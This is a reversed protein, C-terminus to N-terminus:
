PQRRGPAHRAGPRRGAPQRRRRRGGRRGRRGRDVRGRLHRRGPDPRHPRRQAGRRDRRQPRGRHLHARGRRGRHRDARGDERHRHDARARDARGRGHARPHRRGRRHRDRDHRVRHRGAHRCAGRGRGRRPPDCRPRDHHSRDAGARGASPRRRRERRRLRGGPLRPRQDRRGRGHGAHQRRQHDPAPVRGSRHDRGARVAGARGHLAPRGLRRGVGGGPRGRRRRRQGPTSDVDPQGAATVEARNVLTGVQGATARLTLTRSAGAPVDGVTWRGTAAAYTGDGSASVFALGTPLRDTVVVGTAGSTGRNAVRLTYTVTDGAAVTADDAVKALELDVGAAGGGGGGGGGVPPVVPAVRFGFDVDLESGGAVLDVVVTTATTALDGGALTAPVSVEYRGPALGDFRYSGDAASVETRTTDDGDGLIGNPGAGGLTVTVGALGVEGADLVGDADADRFVLDGVSAPAGGTITVTSQDDEGGVLNGPTSDPDHEDSTQVRATTSLDGAGVVEARIQVTRTEGSALAGVTWVGTAPDYAGDTSVFRLGAPLPDVVTVGTTADPGRNVLVLDLVVVQGFAPLPDDVSQTLELDAETADVTATAVDDSPDGDLSDSASVAARNTLPGGTRVIVDLDLSATAGDALTGVAWVGSAETFTGVSPRAAVLDFGAPLTDTVSVGDAADPGDNTVTVAFTVQAGVTPTADSVTKTVVLDSARPDVAATDQDDEGAVGNGPTSTPDLQDSATVEARNVIPSGDAVTGDPEVDLELTVTQGNALTGVTWTGGAFTGQSPRAALLTLGAPLDDTVVVGTAEDPGGNVLTLRYTAPDGVGVSPDDVTKTLRLDAMPEIRFSVLQQDDETEVDNGPTSDVDYQDTAVVEGAVDFDGSRLVTARVLMTASVGAALDGVAWSGGAVAGQSTTTSVLTLGAPLVHRVTVGTAAAPGDNTVVLEFEVVGGVAPAATLLRHALAVDVVQRFGFDVTDVVDGAALTLDTPDNATTLTLGAVPGSTTDVDVRHDGARLLDFRYSGDAATVATRTTTDPLTLTVTVGGIGPEGADQVGDGDLDAFVRDGVSAPAPADVTATAQDDEGAVGNAPTSDPDFADSTRVEATASLTGAATVSAVITLTEVQGATMAGVTWVGLAVDYSGVSPTASDVVLGAPLQESVTVGGADEGGQHEITVTFTVQEGIFTTPSSVTQAVALDASVANTTVSAQDDEAANLNAPTSDVDRQDATAVEVDYTIPGGDQVSVVISVTVQGGAGLAGVTWVGTSPNYAGDASVFTVGAPLPAAVTVGTAEDPGLNDLTLTYTIDQGVRPALPTASVGLELDIAVPTITVTQQDDEAEVDNGPSSDVDAQDVAAVQAVVTQAVPADVTATVTLTTSAGAALDGLTWTTGDYTGTGAAGTLTMGAPIPVDAVVGTADTTSENTVTVTLTVTGGLAPRADDVTAAVALDTTAVSLSVSARDNAAVTDTQDTATRAVEDTLTGTGDVRAQITTSTSAGAALDGITWAGTAATYTGTASVFTLGAPLLDTLVVGTADAPGLNEATLTFTVVQGPNPTADDVTVGVAIDVEPRYGVDVTDLDTGAPLSVLRPNAGATRVYGAPLTTEDVSVRYSGETLGDFRYGGLADTVTAPLVVDDGTGFTDDPGAFTLELTVGPIGAEGPDLVGDGDLDTFVLDGISSAAPMTVAAQSQDDESLVGNGPTSDGDHQDVATVEAVNAFTGAGAARATIRLTRVEDDALSGVAWTGTTDDYAPDDASVFSLGAPLRDTVVVGTADDPGQNRVTVTYVLDQGFVPTADDVTKTVELDVQTADVTVSARDNTVDTDFSDTSEVAALNTTPSDTRVQVTLQLTATEAPAMTGLEWVGNAPTYAGRDVTHTVYGFGVALQDLLAVSDAPDPGENTVTVTFTVEGGVTPTPDDVTKAVALDSTLPNITAADQDDEGAIGNAPTSDVDPEDAATVEARSVVTGPGSPLVVLDLTVTAGAALPGVTWVGTAADYTGQSPDVSQLTVGGPIASTVTVGSAPDPGDNTLTVTFTVPQGAAPRLIDVTETLSLDIAVPTVLTVTQQDDESEVGNAPTSDLDVQDAAAVQAVVDRSGSADVRALVTLTATSGTALDGVTWTGAAYSGQQPTASVFTLGAPLPQTVAVGTADTPGDNTVSVTFTVIDGVAPAADDVTQTLSLDSVRRFGFDVSRVDDGEALTVTTPDNGTTLVLGAVPGTTDVDVTYTGAALLDFRYAGSADTVTSRTTTDPLTLRVTVGAIGPEGADQLGDGDRDEFVTDGVAAPFPVTLTTEAQDDETPDLNNPTSDTDVQDSAVVEATNVHVGGATVDAVLTLTLVAGVPVDGVTWTGTAPDYAGQSAVQSVVSLGAPLLDHVAVGTATEGAENTVTLTYTVQEGVAATPRDISQTLALDASVGNLAVQARDDEGLVGNDPVSDPDAQQSAVVEAVNSVAGPATVTTTVTLVHAAADGVAVDGVTWIGTAPDYDGSAAVFTLGAPLLDRVAVQTAPSPGDNVVRVTFTVDSGVAPSTDDVTKSLRLDAVQPALTVAAQDDESAVANGPTSDPDRQDSVSVQAVNTVPATTTLRADLELTVTAGDAVTGVLWTGTAADYSGTSRAAVFTLGAPLPDRVRVGTAADPGDNTVTVTFTVVDGVNPSASSATKTLSLDATAPVDLIATDEDDETPVTADAPQSAPTSDADPQDAAAVQAFTVIRGTATVTAVIDVSASAGAALAGVPWRGTADDYAGTDSVYRLGAPLVDTVVVGTADDPGANTVTVRLTVQDGLSPTATGLVTAAVSLDISRADVVALAEDDEAPLSPDHNAPTSDLDAQDAAAVEAVNTIPTGADVRVTIALTRTEGVALDGVTWTDGSYAPSDASVFTLGAPLADRVVVGTAPDPGSNTVAIRLVIEDGIDPTADSVTQTLSLDIAAAVTLTQTATDNTADQDDQDLSTVTATNTITGTAAVTVTVLLSATAGSALDPVRWVGTAPDYAGDGSSAVFTVGAPLADQVRVTTATDPGLNRAEVEFTVTDGYAPTASSGAALGKTVSVDALGASVSASAHDDETDVGNGATSDPDFQDSTAVEAVNTITGGALVTVVLDVTRASGAPVAGVTWVGASADYAGDGTARVFAVGAPLADAVTVGTAGDPGTDRVTLTYTLEEGPNPAPASATKTLSLDAAPAVTVAAAAQDDEAPTQPGNGPTSDVDPQGAASVEAVTTLTGTATVRVTVTTTVTAGAPVDGVQWTLTQGAATVTGTSSVFTMGAPLM